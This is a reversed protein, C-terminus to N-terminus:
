QVTNASFWTGTKRIHIVNGDLAHFFVQYWGAM